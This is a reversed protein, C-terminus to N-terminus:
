RHAARGSRTPAPEVHSRHPVVKTEQDGNPDRGGDLYRAIAALVLANISTGQLEATLALEKHEDPTMRVFVNGSYPREPKEGLEACWELYDDVAEHFANTLEPVTSGEFHLVDRLGTVRGSLSGADVDIKAEATYGKYPKLRTM